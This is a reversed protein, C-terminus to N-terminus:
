WSELLSPPLLGPPASQLGAREFSRDPDSRSESQQDFSMTVVGKYATWQRGHPDRLFCGRYGLAPPTAPSAEAPLPDFTYWLAVLKGAAVPDVTWTPDPRGSFLLAGATWTGGNGGNSNSRSMDM